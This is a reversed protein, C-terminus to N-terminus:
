VWKGACPPSTPWAKWHTLWYGPRSRPLALGCNNQTILEALWGPYNTIDQLGSVLYDFFKRPSTGCYISPIDALIM